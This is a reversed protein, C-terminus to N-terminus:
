GVFPQRDIEVRTEPDTEVSFDTLNTAGAMSAVTYWLLTRNFDLLSEPDPHARAEGISLVRDGDRYYAGFTPDYYHWAGDYFVEAAIHNDGAGYYFQVSRVPLGFRKVIAAFTLAAHGCIGAGAHLVGDPTPVPRIGQILNMYGYAPASVHGVVYSMAAHAILAERPYSVGANILIRRTYVVEHM